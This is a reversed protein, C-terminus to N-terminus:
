LAIRRIPQLMQMAAPTLIHLATSGSMVAFEATYDGHYIERKLPGGGATQQSKITQFKVQMDQLLALKVFSYEDALEAATLGSVYTIRITGPKSSWSGSNRILRGSKSIGSADLEPYFDTGYTLQTGSAFDSGGTGFNATPDEYVVPTTSTRLFGNDLQLYEGYCGDGRSAYVQDGSVEFGIPESFYSGIDERRQYEATITEQAIVHGVYKRAASETWQRLKGLLLRDAADTCCGKGFFPEIDYEMSLIETLM